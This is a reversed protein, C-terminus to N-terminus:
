SFQIVLLLYEYFVLVLLILVNFLMQLTNMVIIYFLSVMIIIGLETLFDVAPLINGCVTYVLRPNNKGYHLIFCKSFNFNLGIAVSRLSLNYLAHM